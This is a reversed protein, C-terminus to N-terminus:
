FYFTPRASVSYRQGTELCFATLTNGWVCGTDLAHIGPIPSYGNLAAWHGFLLEPHERHRWFEYWPFLTSSTKPYGKEKLELSGDKYCFRMRTCANVTFRWQQEQTNADNWSAPTNGYMIDFLRHPDQQLLRSVQGAYELAEPITWEPALGAHVMLYHNDTSTHILPQQRFWNALQEVDPSNFLAEVKDAAKIKAYGYYCALFHLDHNGLVCVAKDGLGAVFNLCELSEPGRAILDGCFWLMDNAPDYGIHQLLRQLPEFCGQLDGIVYTAM